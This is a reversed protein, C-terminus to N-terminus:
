AFYVILPSDRLKLAATSEDTNGGSESHMTIKLAMLKTFEVREPIADLYAKQMFFAVTKQTEHGCQWLFQKATSATFDNYLGPMDGWYRTISCTPGTESPVSIWGGIGNTGNYDTVPELVIMPDISIEGGQIMYRSYDNADGICLAGIAGGAPNEGSGDTTLQLSAKTAYPENRWDGFVWKFTVVPLEGPKFGSFTVTASGGMFNIQDPDDTASSGAFHGILYHNVYNETSGDYYVAHSYKLTDASTPAGPLAMWLSYKDATDITKITAFSGGGRGDGRVGVLVGEGATKGHGTVSLFDIASAPSADPNASIAAPTYLGGLVYSLLTAVTPATLNASGGELYMSYELAASKVTPIKPPHGDRRTQVSKDPEAKYDLDVKVDFCRLKTGSNWTASNGADFTTPFTSGKSVYRMEKLVFPAFTM